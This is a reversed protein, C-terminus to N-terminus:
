FGLGMQTAKPKPPAHCEPGEHKVNNVYDSVERSKMLKAPFPTVIIKFEEDTIPTPDLWRQYHEERLITPMRDHVAAVVENPDATLLAMSPPIAEAPDGEDWLAGIGFPRDDAMTFLHPWKRDDEDHYFDYFGNAPVVCRHQRAAAAFTPLQLATGSRANLMVNHRKKPATFGWLLPLAEAGKGRNLVAPVVTRPTVNYRAKVWQPKQLPIGLIRAIEAFAGDPNPLSYRNCM